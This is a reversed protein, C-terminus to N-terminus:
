KVAELMIQFKKVQEGFKNAYNRWEHSVIRFDANVGYYASARFRERAFNGKEFYEFDGATWVTIHTPDCWAGVGPATPVCIDARGGNRLVRYLENMTARKDPLHELIDHAIVEEISSDPWPWPYASLDVVQDAPPAIDVGIFGPKKTDCCGLILKVRGEEEV